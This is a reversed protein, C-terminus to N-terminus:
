DICSAGAKMVLHEAEVSLFVERGKVVVYASGASGYQMVYVRRDRGAYHLMFRAPLKRGYGSVTRGYTPASTVTAEGLLADDTYTVM